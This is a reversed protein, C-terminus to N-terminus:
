GELYTWAKALTEIKKRAQDPTLRGLDSSPLLRVEGRAKAAIREVRRAVDEPKEPDANRADVVGLGLIKSFGQSIKEELTESSALDWTIQNVPLELLKLYLPAADAGWTALSVVADPPKTRGLDQLFRKLVPLDEPHTLIAPEGIQLTTAGADFLAKAEALLGAAADAALRDADPWADMDAAMRRALTVPGALVAKVVTGRRAPAPFSGPVTRTRGDTVVHCGAKEQARVADKAADEPRASPNGERARPWGSHNEVRM